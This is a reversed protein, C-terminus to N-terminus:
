LRSKIFVRNDLEERICFALFEKISKSYEQPYKLLHCCHESDLFPHKWIKGKMGILDKRCEILMEIHKVSTLHDYQSYLYLQPINTSDNSLGNWFETFRQHVVNQDLSKTMTLLDKREIDSSVYELASQLDDIRGDYYGPASDFIVGILKQQLNSVDISNHTSSLQQLTDQEYLIYRICEWLFCGGNSFIHIIFYPPQLAQLEKLTNIALHQMESSSSPQSYSPGESMTTVISKPSAIQIIMDWGLSNYLKSYRRLNRPHCGLWGALIVVPKNPKSM